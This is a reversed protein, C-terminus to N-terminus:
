ARPAKPKKPKPKTPATPSAEAEPNAAGAMVKFAPLVLPQWGFRTITNHVIERLYPWANLPINGGSSFQELFGQEVDSGISYFVCFEIKMSGFQTEDDPSGFKLDLLSLAAFENASQGNATSTQYESKVQVQNVDIVAVNSKADISTLHISVINLSQLIEGYKNQDYATTM